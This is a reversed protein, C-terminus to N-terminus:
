SALLANATENLLWLERHQQLLTPWFKPNEKGFREVEELYHKVRDSDNMEASGDMIKTSNQLDLREMRSKTDAHKMKRNKQTWLM